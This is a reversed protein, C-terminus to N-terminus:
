ELWIGSEPCTRQSCVKYSALHALHAIGSATGIAQDSVKAGTVRNSTATSATHTGHGNKDVPTDGDIFNRGGILKNNCATGSLDCKGKWRAPPPPVGRGSFSPHNPTIGSDLVGIIIGMGYNSDKWLGVNQQLGLFTPGRTTNLFLVKEPSASMFGDKKAMSKVEEASLRAAFGMITNNYCHLMRTRRHSHAITPPLFSYYWSELEQPLLSNAKTHPLTVHVIYTKLHTKNNACIHSSDKTELAISPYLGFM